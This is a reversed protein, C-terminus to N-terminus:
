VQYREILLSDLHESCSYKMPIITKNTGTICDIYIYIYIYIYHTHLRM